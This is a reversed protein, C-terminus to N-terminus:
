SVDRTSHGSDGRFQWTTSETVATWSQFAKNLFMIKTLQKTDRQLKQNLITKHCVGEKEQQMKNTM